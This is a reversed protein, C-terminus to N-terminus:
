KVRTIIFAAIARLIQTDYPLADLARISEEYLEKAREDLWVAVIDAVFSKCAYLLVHLGDVQAVDSVCFGADVGIQTHQRM